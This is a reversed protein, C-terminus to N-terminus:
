GGFTSAVFGFFIISLIIGAILFTALGLAWFKVMDKTTLTNKEAAM